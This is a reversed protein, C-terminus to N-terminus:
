APADDLPIWTKMMLVLEDVALLFKARELTGPRPVEPLKLIWSMHDFESKLPINLAFEDNVTSTCACSVTAYKIVLAQVKFPFRHNQRSTILTNSQKYTLIFKLSVKRLKVAFVLFLSRIYKLSRKPSQCLSDMVSNSDSNAAEGWSALIYLDRTCDHIGKVLWINQHCFPPCSFHYLLLKVSIEIMWQHLDSFWLSIPYPFEGAPLFWWNDILPDKSICLICTDIM